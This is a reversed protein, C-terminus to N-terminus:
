VHGMIVESQNKWCAKSNGSKCNDGGYLWQALGGQDPILATNPMTYWQRDNSTKNFVDSTSRYLKDNFNELMEEQVRENQVDCAETGMRSAGEDYDSVLLNMMPNVKTPRVCKKGTSKSKVFNNKQYTEKKKTEKQQEVTYMALSLILAIALIYFTKYNNRFLLLIITFYLSFRVLANIQESHNMDSTPFFKLFNDQTIFNKPDKFWIKDSNSM